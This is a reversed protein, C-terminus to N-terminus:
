VGRAPHHTFAGWLRATLRVPPRRPARVIPRLLPGAKVRRVAQPARPLAGCARRPDAGRNACRQCIEGLAVAIVAMLKAGQTAIGIKFLRRLDPDLAFMKM